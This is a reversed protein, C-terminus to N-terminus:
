GRVVDRSVKWATAIEAVTFHEELPSPNPLFESM